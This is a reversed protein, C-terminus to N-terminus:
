AEYGIEVTKSGEKGAGEEKEKVKVQYMGPRDPVPEHPCDCRDEEPSWSSGVALTLVM